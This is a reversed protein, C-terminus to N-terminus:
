AKAPVYVESRIIDVDFTQDGRKLRLRVPTGAMGRLAEVGDSFSQKEVAVSDILLVVDGARLGAVEAPSGPLTKLVVFRENKRELIAGIGSLSFGPVRGTRRSLAVRVQATAGAFVTVGSEVRTNYDGHSVTLSRRGRAVDRLTFGGGADTHVAEGFWGSDLRVAAGPIGVGRDDVVIGAVTGSGDLVVSVQTSYGATVNLGSKFVAGYGRSTFALEYTGALLDELTFRGGASVVRQAARPGLPGSANAHVVAVTFDQVPKGTLGDSVQGVIGGTAQLRLVLNFSGPPVGARIAIANGAGHATVVQPLDPLDSFLFNGDVDTTKQQEDALQALQSTPSGPRVTVRVGAVPLEDQGVVRGGIGKGIGVQLVTQLASGPPLELLTVQGPAHGKAEAQLQKQGAPLGGVAFRGEKDCPLRRLGLEDKLLVQAGVVARGDPAVVRGALTSGKSVVIEAGTLHAGSRAYLPRSLAAGLAGADARLIVEAPPIRLTFRGSSDSTGVAFGADFRTAGRASHVTVRAGSLPRRAADVVRGAVTALRYLPFDLWQIASGEEVQVRPHPAAAVHEEATFSVDYVGAPLDLQYRGQDATKATLEALPARFSLLVGAIPAGTDADRVTGGVGIAPGASSGPTRPRPSFAGARRTKEPVPTGDGLRQRERRPWALYFLGGVLALSVLYLLARKITM